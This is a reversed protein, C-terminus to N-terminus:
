KRRTTVQLPRARAADAVVRKAENLAIARTERRCERVENRGELDYDSATGCVSVVARWIRRDLAKAGKETALDLDSHTVVATRPQTVAQATAPQAFSVAALAALILLKSM